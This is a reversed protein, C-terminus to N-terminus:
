PAMLRAQATKLNEKVGTEIGDRVKGMLVGALMGTPPDLRTRFLSLLYLSKGDATPVAALIELSANFYHTAALLKNAILLGRPGRYITAHYASVVPKLGFTDKAWYFVDLAGPLKGAPYAELYDNFEKVYEVLYPSNAMLSRFEQARSKEQKKDLVNGMAATGGQQYARVYEVMAENFIQVAKKDADPASWNIKSVAELGKTGLKVDCSGPKCKRLAAIDDPPHHLGILDEVKAPDSFRGMEPIQPVQRFKQFDRARTLLLDVTGATKVVGFAAIEAKETTPLLKTVVAGKEVAALQADDLQIAKRLFPWPAPEQAPAVAPVMLALLILSVRSANKM